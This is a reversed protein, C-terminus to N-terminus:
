NAEKRCSSGAEQFLVKSKTDVTVLCIASYVPPAWYMSMLHKYIHVKVVREKLLSYGYLSQM